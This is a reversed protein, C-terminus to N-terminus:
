VTSTSKTLNCQSCAWVVNDITHTGGKSLPIIHDLHVAKPIHYLLTTNCYACLNNQKIKLAELMDITISNNSTKNQLERRNGQNTTSALKGRVSEAYKKASEKEKEYRCEKCASRFGTLIQSKKGFAALPLYQKCISCLKVEAELIKIAEDVLVQHSKDRMCKECLDFQKRDSRKIFTTSCNDCTCEYYRRPKNISGDLTTIGLDKTIAM